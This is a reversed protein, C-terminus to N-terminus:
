QLHGRHSVRHIPMHGSHIPVNADAGHDLLLRIVGPDGSSSAEYLISSEDKAQAFVDAGVLVFCAPGQFPEVPVAPVPSLPESSCEQQQEPVVSVESGSPRHVLRKKLGRM